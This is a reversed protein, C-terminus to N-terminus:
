CQEKFAVHSHEYLDVYGFQLGGMRWIALSIHDLAYFKLTCMKLGQHKEFVEVAIKQSKM